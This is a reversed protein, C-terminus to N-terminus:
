NDMDEIPTSVPVQNYLIKDEEALELFLDLDVESAENQNEADEKFDFPNEIPLKKTKKKLQKIKLEVENKVEEIHSIIQNIAEIKNELDTEIKKIENFSLSFEPYKQHKQKGRRM